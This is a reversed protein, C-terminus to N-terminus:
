CSRLKTGEIKHKEGNQWESRGYAHAGGSCILNGSRDERRPVGHRARLTAPPPHDPLESTAATHHPRRARLRVPMGENREPVPEARARSAPRSWSPRGSAQAVFSGSKSNLGRMKREFLSRKSNTELHWGTNEIIYQSRDYQKKTKECKETTGFASRKRGRGSEPSCGGPLVCAERPFEGKRSLICM